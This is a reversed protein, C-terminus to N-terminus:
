TAAATTNTAVKVVVGDRGSREPPHSLTIRSTGTLHQLPNKAALAEIPITVAFVQHAPALAGEAAASRQGADQRDARSQGGVDTSDRRSSYSETPCRGRGGPWAALARPRPKSSLTLEHTLAECRDYRLPSRGRGTARNGNAPRFATRPRCRGPRWAASWGVAWAGEPLARGGMPRAGATLVVVHRGARGVAAADRGGVAEHIRVDCTSGRDPGRPEVRDTRPWLRRATGAPARTTDRDHVM